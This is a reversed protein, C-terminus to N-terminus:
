IQHKLAQVLVADVSLKTDPLEGREVGDDSAALKIGPFSSATPTNKKYQM